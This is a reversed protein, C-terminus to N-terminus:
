EVVIEASERLYRSFSEFDASSYLGAVGQLMAERQEQPMEDAEPTAVEKLQVVNYEGNSVSGEVVPGNVPRPLSFAFEVVSRPQETDARSIDTVQVLEMGEDAALTAFDEGSAVREVISEGRERLIDAAKQESLIATINGRVEDLPKVYSSERELLKVVVVRDSALELLESSNGFELVEEGFAAKVVSDYAAIGSGGDRSFPDSRQAELGLTDAVNELSEANYSLDELSDLLEVFRGEARARKIQAAIADREADFDPAEGGSKDLLKIFHTGAETTVPDSVEGVSLQALAEEFEEPFADGTTVGLDGGLDKSGLDDSYQQALEAFDEGAELAAQVEAVEGGEAEELLIHAVHREVVPTFDDVNEEFYQRVEEDSLTEAAMLRDVSLDIFEVVLKEPETFPEPNAEYYAAIEADSVEVQDLLDDISLSVYAFDRTQNNLEALYDVEAETAFGSNTIGNALQSVMLDRSLENRYNAPTYALRRLAMTFVDPDFQGASNQFAPISVIVDDIRQRSIAMNAERAAQTLLTRDVLRDIAPQRLNENSLFSEPVSDGFRNRLQTKQQEVARLVETESIEQGNVTLAIQTNNRSSFLAEAGSLAFIIVLLGVLIGAVVGKSNDRMTQLM